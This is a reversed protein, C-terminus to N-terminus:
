NNIYGKLTTYKCMLEEETLKSLQQYLLWQEIFRKEKLLQKEQYCIKRNNLVEISYILKDIIKM